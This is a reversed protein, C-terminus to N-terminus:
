KGGVSRKLGDLFEGLAGVGMGVMCGMGKACSDSGLICSVSKGVSEKGSIKEMRQIADECQKQQDDGQHGCLDALKRCASRPNKAIYRTYGFYAAGGILGVVILFVLLKKM